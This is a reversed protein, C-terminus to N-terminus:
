QKESIQGGFPSNLIINEPIAFPVDKNKYSLLWDNFRAIQFTHDQEYDFRNAKWSDYKNWHFKISEHDVITFYETYFDWTDKLTWHIPRNIKHMFETTIYVEAYRLKAHELVTTNPSPQILKDQSLPLNWYNLMDNTEGFMFMDGIGYPRYKLTTFSCAVLRKNHIKLAAASLPFGDILSMCYGFIDNSTFRQDTRSKICYSAGLKKAMKIGNITSLLQLNINNPGKSTPLKNKLISLNAIKLKELSSLDEGEWTSLILRVKPYQESYFLLSNLTYNDNRLIPGQLIIAFHSYESNNIKLLSKKQKSSFQIFENSSDNFNRILWELLSYKKSLSLQNIIRKLLNNVYNKM